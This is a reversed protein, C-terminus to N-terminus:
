KMEYVQSNQFLVNELKRIIIHVREDVFNTSYMEELPLSLESLVCEMIEHFATREIQKEDLKKNLWVTNGEINLCRSIEGIQCQARINSDLKKFKIFVQYEPILLKSYTKVYQIFIKKNNIKKIDVM